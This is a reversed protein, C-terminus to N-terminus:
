LQSTHQLWEKQLRKVSVPYPTKLEQAFLSVRLEQIKWQFLDVYEPIVQNEHQYQKIKNQWQQTLEEIEHERAQDRVSNSGYKEMRKIMAQLYVPLRPWQTWPTATIFGEFILQNLQQRLLSTLPHKGLQHNVSSYAQAVQLVYQNLATKVAPLRSRARKIQAQFTKEDRPAEDDGLLARNLAAQTLDQRLKDTGLQKLLMAIQNFDALGKHLDKVQEKMHLALLAVVGQRHAQRAADETDFLHLSISGDKQQQLGLYGTLQQQGRAFKIKDPLTGFDWRTIHDREFEHSNDRFTIAAAQGLEQQLSSLQRGMALEEQGDDVVQINFYCHDPLAHNAWADLDIEELLRMDGAHKAIAHALQPLIPAEKDPQSSLFTTIFDPVPVCIRRIQKPLAKILLQLKERIMGPVLWELRAANIRNLLPLPLILTVGDMPHHPEFRYNLACRGDTTALFEPFQAETIHEAAHQMLDERNLFLYQPHHYEAERRWSEFTRIDALPLDQGNKHVTQPLKQDYFAFLTEDDVLVDQKRAKHELETIEHILQQNHKFFPATLQCEQAVLAGRIFLERAEKPNIRGFAVPRRPLITLGYLTVRENAMVEGRKCSWHPEFYHYRLLHPAEAEIWEPEIKAVDRAYLRSTETLEAAMVWKPKSKFLASAPFLHFHSGRAGIYDHGEQSKLGINAILGSLLARHIREYLTEKSGRRQNRQQKKIIQQQKYQARVDQQTGEPVSILAPTDPRTLLRQTQTKDALGMDIVIQALQHHLERWERLRVHSLFYQHCWQMLQRNSLGKDRERQFSDWINLYALFDSQKDQFREHAKAAAERAELPRERPDQISLASVIILMEAMCDLRSAALLMRSIRPDVPLRAMQRGLATLQHHEDVAGLEELAQYGDNIYRQEPAQLFPFQAVQGLNLSVMRLIVAALNSRVIEPDTFEARQNFDDEAYLRICIGAAVRGCRGARQRAAAQSINEIQLQEVKARASYRKVRALGTDIVYRIGPVTLSTEAVNTALIIRRKQSTPHFIRQQEESSLRAFLPLIDDNRRLPSQQLAHAAERIEREGPLFVLIDGQGERALEDAADVIADTIAIETEDADGKHLPRYRIEVPYTRGSVEIVPAAQGHLTFHQSFRQADITASTIIVKLDPRRPLLQKLYGLLFDINLSREHAEDIIITDYASLFRDTQSEALLIGDTMLKIHSDTTTQDNFRVKYGVAQGINSGLEEAIREAVSRAALRRPQTHGILGAVGRGLELCIKPLQTTKGSGTEGCVIVVQHTSIATKIDDLKDHVPLTHDYHPEPKHSLRQLYAQHSKQYRASVKEVGGFRSPNQHARYLFYRDKSLVQNLNFAPM